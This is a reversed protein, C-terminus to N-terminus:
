YLIDTETNRKLTKLKVNVYYINCASMIIGSSAVIDRPFLVVNFDGVPVYDEFNPYLVGYTVKVVTAVCLFMMKVLSSMLILNITSRM